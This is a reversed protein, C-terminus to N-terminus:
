PSDSAISTSSGAGFAGDILGNVRASATDLLIVLRASTLLTGTGSDIAIMPLHAEVIAETVGFTQVAM